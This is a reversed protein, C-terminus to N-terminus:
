TFLIAVNSFITFVSCTMMFKESNDILKDFVHERSAQKLVDQLKVRSFSRLSMNNVSFFGSGVAFLCILLISWGVEDM